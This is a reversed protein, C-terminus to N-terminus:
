DVKYEVWESCRVWSIFCCGNNEKKDFVQEFREEAFFTWGACLAQCEGLMENLKQAQAILACALLSACFCFVSERDHLKSSLRTSTGRARKIFFKSCAGLKRLSNTRRSHIEEEQRSKDARAEGSLDAAHPHTLSPSSSSRQLNREKPRM